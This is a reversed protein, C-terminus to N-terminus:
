QLASSTEVPMTIFPCLLMIRWLVSFIMPPSMIELYGAHLRMMRSCLPEPLVSSAPMLLANRMNLALTGYQTRHAEDTIVIVDNRETYPQEPEVQKSFKQVLSFIYAKNLTLLENLHNGSVARCPDRDNNVM